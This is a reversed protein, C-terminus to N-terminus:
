IHILSLRLDFPLDIIHQADPRQMAQAAYPAANGATDEALWQPATEAAHANGALQKAAQGPDGHGQEAAKRHVPHELRKNAYAQALLLLIVAGIQGNM